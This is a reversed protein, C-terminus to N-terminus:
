TNRLIQVCSLLEYTGNYMGINIGQMDDVNIEKNMNTHGIKHTNLSISIYIYMCLYVYDYM